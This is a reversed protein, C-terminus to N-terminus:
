DRECAFQAATQERTYFRGFRLFGAIMSRKVAVIRGTADRRAVVEEPLGDLVHMPAPSGDAFRARFIRGTQTDRFAPMFGTGRTEESIGCTGRWIRTERRLSQETVALATNM